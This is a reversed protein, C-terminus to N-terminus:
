NSHQTAAIKSLLLPKTMSSYDYQYVGDTASILLRHQNEFPIVDNAELGELLKTTTINKVDSADMFRLGYQGECIFLKGNDIGLGHPNKMETTSLIVPNDVNSIDFVQLQNINGACAGGSRVTVYAKNGEVVVPDCARFHSVVSRQVPAAPNTIDYLYMANQGGIFLYEGYPFITEIGLNINQASKFVPDAANALDFTKIQSFNVAYLYDRAIAFRAMSGGKGTQVSKYSAAAGASSFLVMPNNVTCDCYSTDRVTYAIVMSDPSTKWGTPLGNQDTPYGTAEPLGKVFRANLPDSINFVVLNNYSDAYLYDGKIAIDVNGKINLFSINGPSAPHSNDIIHIGGRYPDNVFIYQDKAYIKGVTGIETPAESKVSAWYDDVAMLVPTYVKKQIIKACKDKACGGLALMVAIMVPFKIYTAIYM